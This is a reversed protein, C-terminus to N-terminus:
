EITIMAPQRGHNKETFTKWMFNTDGRTPAECSKQVYHLWTLQSTYTDVSKERFRRFLAHELTIKIM